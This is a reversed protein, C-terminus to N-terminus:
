NILNGRLFVKNDITKKEPLVSLPYQVMDPWNCSMKIYSIKFGSFILLNIKISIWHMLVAALNTIPKLTLM